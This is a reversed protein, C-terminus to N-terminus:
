QILFFEWFRNGFADFSFELQKYDWHMQEDFGALEAISANRVM